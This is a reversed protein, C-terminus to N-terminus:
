SKADIPYEAMQVNLNGDIVMKLKIMEVEDIMNPHRTIDMKIDFVAHPIIAYDPIYETVAEGILVATENHRTPPDPQEIERKGLLYKIFRKLSGWM